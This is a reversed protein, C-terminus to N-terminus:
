EQWYESGAYEDSDGSDEVEEEAVVTETGTYAQPGFYSALDFAAEREQTESNPPPLRVEPIVENPDCPELEFRVQVKYVSNWIVARAIRRTGRPLASILLIAAAKGLKTGLLEEFERTGREVKLCPAESSKDFELGRRPYIVRLIYPQTEENVVHHFMIYKLTEMDYDLKYVARAAVNWQVNDYRFIAYAVLLGPGTLHNYSNNAHDRGAAELVAQNTVKSSIAVRRYRSGYPILGVTEPEGGLMVDGPNTFHADGIEFHDPPTANLLDDLSATTPAINCGPENPDELWAILQAGKARYVALEADTPEHYLDELTHFSGDDVQGHEGLEKPQNAEHYCLDEALEMIEEEMLTGTHDRELLRLRKAPSEPEETNARKRSDSAQTDAPLESARARTKASGFYLHGDNSSESESEPDLVPMNTKKREIYFRSNSPGASYGLLDELSQDLLDEPPFASGLRETDEMDIDSNESSDIDVDSMEPTIGTHPDILPSPLPTFQEDSSSELNKPLTPAFSVRRKPPIVEKQTFTVEPSKDAAKKPYALTVPKTVVKPEMDVLSIASQASSSSTDEQDQEDDSCDCRLRKFCNLNVCFFKM